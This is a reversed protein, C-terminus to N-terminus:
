ELVVKGSHLLVGNQSIYIIWTGPSYNGGNYSTWNAGIENNGRVLKTTFYYSYSEKNPGTIRVYFTKSGDETSNGTWVPALYKVKKAQLNTGYRPMTPKKNNGSSNGVQMSKIKFTINQTQNEKPAKLANIETQLSDREKKVLSLEVNLSDKESYLIQIRSTLDERLQNGWNIADNYSVIGVISIIVCVGASVLATIVQKKHGQALQQTLNNVTSHAQPVSKLSVSTPPPPAFFDINGSAIEELAAERDEKSMDPLYDSLMAGLRKRNQLIPEGYERVINKIADSIEPKISM